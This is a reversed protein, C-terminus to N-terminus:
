AQQDQWLFTRNFYFLHKQKPMENKIGPPASFVRRLHKKLGGNYFLLGGPIM